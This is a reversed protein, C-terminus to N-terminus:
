DVIMKYYFRVYITYDGGIKWDAKESEKYYNYGEENGMYFFSPASSESKGCNLLEFGIFFKKTPLDIEQWNLDFEVIGFKETTSIVADKKLLDNEPLGLGTTAVDRIHLKLQCTDYNHNIKLQVSKLIFKNVPMDFIYGIEGGALKENWAKYYGVNKHDGKISSFVLVNELEQSEREMLIKNEKLLEKIMVKKLKYGVASVLLIDKIESQKKLTFIFKGSSDTLIGEGKTSIITALSIPEENEKDLVFGTLRQQGALLFSFFLSIFFFYFRM